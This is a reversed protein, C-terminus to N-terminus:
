VVFLGAGPITGIVNNSTTLPFIKAANTQNSQQPTMWGPAPYTSNSPYMTLNAQGEKYAAGPTELSVYEAVLVSCHNVHAKM